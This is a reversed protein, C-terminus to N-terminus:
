GRKMMWHIGYILAICILSMWFWSGIFFSVAVMALGGLFCTHEENRRGYVIYGSGIAGWVLSAFLFKTDLFNM